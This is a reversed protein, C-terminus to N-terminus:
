PNILLDSSVLMLYHNKGVFAV